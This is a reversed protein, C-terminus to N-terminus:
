CPPRNKLSAVITGRAASVLLRDGEFDIVADSHDSVFAALVQQGIIQSLAPVIQWTMCYRDDEEPVAGGEPVASRGLATGGEPVAGGERVAGGEIQPPPDVKTCAIARSASSVAGGEIQPPDVKPLANAECLPLMTAGEIQPPDVKNTNVAGRWFILDDNESAAIVLDFDEFRLLLPAGAMQQDRYCEWVTLVDALYQRITDDLAADDNCRAPASQGTRELADNVALDDDLDFTPDPQASRAPNFPPRQARPRRDDPFHAIAQGM